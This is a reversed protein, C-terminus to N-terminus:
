KNQDATSTAGEIHSSTREPGINSTQPSISDQGVLTPAIRRRKVPEQVEKGGANATYGDGESESGRKGLLAGPAYSTSAAFSGGVSAPLPTMPPTPSAIPLHHPLVTGSGAAALGPVAGFTPTPNNVVGSPTNQSPVASPVFSSQTAISSASNSRQPSSPRVSGPIGTASVPGPSPSPVFGSGSSQRMMSASASSIAGPIPPTPAHSPTGAPSPAASKSTNITSPLHTRTTSLSPGRYVSGLESSSFSLSSCFGDSSSMLLTNGDASWTVDTFTAYHLNSVVCLPTQQQTDYVYVADQTAVAYVIRYPLAFAAQPGPIPSKPDPEVPRVAVGDALGLGSLSTGNSPNSPPPMSPIIPEPLQSIDESSASTDVTIAQTPAPLRLNYFIPSCRVAISPKKHGPLHAIPPKNLGGRSYIYVTNIIDDTTKTPDTLSPQSTKYQGAPTFLLSGDPAFTLRRFFSTLTENAYINTNRVSLAVYPNPSASPMVAPLPMNPAPSASRRISPSANGLSSRRSHSGPPPPNM